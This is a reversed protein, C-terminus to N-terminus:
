RPTDDRWRVDVYRTFKGGEFVLRGFKRSEPFAQQLARVQRTVLSDNMGLQNLLIVTRVGSRDLMPLVRRADKTASDALVDYVYRSAPIRDLLFAYEPAGGVVHIPGAPRGRMVGAVGAFLASDDASVWLGGRPLALRAWRDPEIKMPSTAPHRFGAVILFTGAAFVAPSPAATRHVLVSVLALVAIPTAYLSYPLNAFPVQLLQATAACAVLLFVVSGYPGPEEERRWSGWLAVLPLVVPLGRVMLAVSASTFEDRQALVGALVGLFVAVATVRRGRAPAAYRVGLTLALPALMMGATAVRGPPPLWILTMRAAPTVFVGTFLDFLAGDPVYMLLFPVLPVAMGAALPMLLAALARVGDGATVEAAYASWSLWLVTVAIPLVFHFLASGHVEAPLMLVLRVVLLVFAAGAGTVFAAYGWSGRAPKTRGAHAAHSACWLLLAALLFFGTSKFVIAIGVMVGAQVM